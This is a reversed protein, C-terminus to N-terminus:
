RDSPMSPAHMNRAHMDRVQMSCEANFTGSALTCHQQFGSKYEWFKHTDEGKADHLTWFLCSQRINESAVERGPLLVSDVAHYCYRGGNVCDKECEAAGDMCQTYKFRPVLRLASGPALKSGLQALDDLFLRTLRCRPGCDESTHWVNVTVSTDSKPSFLHKFDMHLRVAAGASDLVQQLRAGACLGRLM